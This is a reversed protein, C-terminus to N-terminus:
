AADKVRVGLRHWGPPVWPSQIVRKGDTILYVGASVAQEAAELLTIEPPHHIVAVGQPGPNFM